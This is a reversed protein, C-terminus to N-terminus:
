KVFDRVQAYVSYDKYIESHGMCRSTIRNVLAGSLITSTTPSVWEDCETRWTGYNVAGPTEDGSNLAVIFSSNYKLEYCSLTMAECFGGGFGEVKTTGHNPGALSVFDDVKTAGGLNKIYYRGVLGGMSHTVLDVKGTAPNAAIIRNVSERLREASYANHNWWDYDFTYLPQVSSSWGSESMFWSTMTGWISSNSNIGHIFIVPNRKTVTTGGTGGTGGTETGGGTGGTGGGVPYEPWEYVGGGGGGESWCEALAAAPASIALATIALILLLRSRMVSAM